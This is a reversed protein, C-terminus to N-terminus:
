GPRRDPWGDALIVPPGGSAWGDDALRTELEELRTRFAAGTKFREEQRRNDLWHVILVYEATRNDYRTEVRLARDDQSFFWLM